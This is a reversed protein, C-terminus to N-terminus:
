FRFVGFFFLVTDLRGPLIFFCLLHLSFDVFVINECKVYYSFIWCLHEEVVEIM